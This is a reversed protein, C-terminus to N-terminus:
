RMGILQHLQPLVRVNCLYPDALVRDALWALDALQKARSAGIDTEAIDRVPQVYFDIGTGHWAVFVTKAWKLDEYSSIPIKVVVKTKSCNLQLISMFSPYSFKTMMGSSPPKPSVTILEVNKFWSPCVSGQTEVAVQKGFRTHIADIIYECDFLAPNGGSLTVWPALSSLGILAQLIDWATMVSSSQAILEPLVSGKTDCWSCRYDCGAFRVFDTQVGILAGEGQLVPGFVESIRFGRVSTTPQAEVTTNGDPGDTRVDGMRIRDGM